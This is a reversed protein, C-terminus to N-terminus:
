DGKRQHTVLIDDIAVDLLGSLIVLNDLNPMSKGSYWRYVGQVTTFGCARQVDTAKLNSEKVIKRINQGTAIPDLMKRNCM